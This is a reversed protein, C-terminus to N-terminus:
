RQRSEGPKESRDAAEANAPAEKEFAAGFDEDDSSPTNQSNGDSHDPRRATAATVSDGPAGQAGPRKAVGPSVAAESTRAGTEEVLKALVERATMAVADNPDNALQEMVYMARTEKMKGLAILIEIKLDPDGARGLVNLLVDSAANNGIEGLMTVSYTRVYRDSSQDLIFERLAPIARDRFSVIERIVQRVKEPDFPEAEYLTKLSVLKDLITAKLRDGGFAPDEALATLSQDVRGIEQSTQSMERKLSDLETKLSAVMQDQTKVRDELSQFAKSKNFGLKGHFRLGIWVGPAVFQGTHRELSLAFENTEDFLLSSLEVAGACLELHDNLTRWAAFLAFRFREDRRWGELTTYLGMGFYKEIAFYPNFKETEVSPISQFGGHIRTRIPDISKGLAVFLENNIAPDSDMGYYNNEKHSFFNHAGVALSPLAIHTEGLIRAKFGMTFGNAYGAHLNVWEIIGLRALYTQGFRAQGATDKSVFGDFGLVFEGGGLLDADPTMHLASWRTKAAAGGASALCILAVGVWRILVAM